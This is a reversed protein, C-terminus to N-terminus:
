RKQEHAKEKRGKRAFQAELAKKLAADYDIRGTAGFAQPIFPITNLNIREGTRARYYGLVHRPAYLKLRDKKANLFLVFEGPELRDVDVERARALAALGEHLCRMDVDFFCQIVRSM